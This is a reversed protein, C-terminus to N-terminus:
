GAAMRVEGPIPGEAVSPLSSERAGGKTDRGALKEAKRLTRTTEGPQWEYEELSTEGAVSPLSSERAGGKTDRGALEKGKRLTRRNRGGVMRIAVLFGGRRVFPVGTEGRGGKTDCGPGKGKSPYAKVRGGAYGWRGGAAFPLSSEGAGGKTDRGALEKGRRLYGQIM